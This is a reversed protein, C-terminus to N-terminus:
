SKLINLKQPNCEPKFIVKNKLISLQEEDSIRSGEIFEDYNSISPSYAYDIDISLVNMQKKKSKNM